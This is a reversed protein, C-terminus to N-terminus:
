APAGPQPMGAPRWIDAPLPAQVGAQRAGVRDKSGGFWPCERFRPTTCYQRFEEISPIMLWAAARSLICYGEVPYLWEARAPRMQSCRHRRVERLSEALECTHAEDSMSEEGSRCGAPRLGLMDAGRENVM